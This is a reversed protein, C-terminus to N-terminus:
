CGPGGPNSVCGMSSVLRSRQDRLLARNLRRVDIALHGESTRHVTGQPLPQASANPDVLPAQVTIKTVDRDHIEFEAAASAQESTARGQESTAM